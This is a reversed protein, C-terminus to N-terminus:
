VRKAHKGARPLGALGDRMVFFNDFGVTLDFGAFTTKAAFNVAFDGSQLLDVILDAALHFAIFGERKLFYVSM